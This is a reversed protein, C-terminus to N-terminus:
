LSQGGGGRDRSRQQQEQERKLDQESMADNGGLSRAIEQLNKMRQLVEAEYEQARTKPTPKPSEGMLAGLLGGLLGSATHAVGSGRSKRTVPGAAPATRQAPAKATTAAKVGGVPQAAGQAKQLAEARAPRRTAEEAAQGFRLRALHAPDIHYATAARTNEKRALGRAMADLDKVTEYAAYIHVSERHRTLAVYAASNKWSSSHCVYTQDLTKGQGKYITGSYGHRFANWEGAEKDEGVLFQLRQPEKGKKADLEVTVLPKGDETEIATITGVRGNIYGADRDAKCLGNGTLQVRDGAAFNAEGRSTQLAVDEGLGGRQRQLARSFDNLADVEANSYAFMFRKKGPDAALDDAYQKAMAPLTDDQKDTWHLRGTKEALQLAGLFEGAHMEGFARKQEADSVRQVDRLIAAGHTVRLTEFMGGKEVSALQADDGALILKAGAQRAADTLKALSETSLMAAEDVILVSNKDWRARGHDLRMLESAITEAKFGEGRMQQVVDNTHSLGLVKLGEAEYASRVANLTHTKGTGAQGWLMAFGEAGTLHVLADAQEPKLTFQKAVKEARRADLGHTHDEALHAANRQVAMEAALVERTTYRTVPAEAAERLGIVTNEALVERFFAAREKKDLIAYSLVRDLERATFTPTRETMAAVIAAGDRAEIADVIKHLKRRAEPIQGHEREWRVGWAQAKIQDDVAAYTKGTLPDIRSAVIHLHPHKTDHHAIFVAQANEMGLAKLFSRAAEAMDERSPEQGAAWSLSAHLCDNKCKLTPSAQHQPLSNWEMSKRALELDADTRIEFGFNQGGLIEARPAAGEALTLRAKTVRDFGESMAYRIAGSIGVRKTITPVPM